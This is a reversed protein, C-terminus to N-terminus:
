CSAAVGQAAKPCPMTTSLILDVESLMNKLAEIGARTSETKM